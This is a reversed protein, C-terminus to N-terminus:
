LTPTAIEFVLFQTSKPQRVKKIKALFYNILNKIYTIIFDGCLKM